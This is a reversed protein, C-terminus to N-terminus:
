FRRRRLFLLSGGFLALLTSSPEPIVFGTTHFKAQLVSPDETGVNPVDTTFVQFAVQSAPNPITWSPDETSEPTNYAGFFTEGPVVSAWDDLEVDLFDNQSLEPYWFMTFPDGTHVGDVLPDTTVALNINAFIATGGSDFTTGAMGIVFDDSGPTFSDPTPHSVGDGNFDAVFLVLKSDDQGFPNRQEDTLFASSVQLTATGSTQAGAQRLGGIVM